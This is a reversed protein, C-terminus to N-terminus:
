MSASPLSSGQVSVSLRIQRSRTAPSSMPAAISRYARSSGSSGGDEHTGSSSAASAACGTISGAAHNPSIERRHRQGALRQAEVQRREAAPDSALHQLCAQAPRRLGETGAGAVPRGIDRQVLGGEFDLRRRQHCRVRHHRFPKEFPRRTRDVRQAAEGGRAKTEIRCGSAKGADDGAALARRRSRQDDIEVRRRLVLRKARELEAQGRVEPWAQGGPELIVRIQQLRQQRRRTTGQERRQLRLFEREGGAAQAARSPRDRVGAGSEDRRRSIEM